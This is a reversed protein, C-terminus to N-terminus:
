CKNGPLKVKNKVIYRGSDIELFVFFTFKICDPFLFCVLFLGLDVLWLELCVFYVLFLSPLLFFGLCYGQYSFVIM